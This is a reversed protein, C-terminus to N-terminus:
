EEKLEIIGLKIYKHGVPFQQGKFILKDVCMELWKLASNNMM